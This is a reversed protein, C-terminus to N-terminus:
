LAKEIVDWVHQEGLDELGKPIVTRPCGERYRFRGRVEEYTKRSICPFGPTAESELRAGLNVTTGIATFDMLDYTGVNGLVAGGTSIGVRVQFPILGLVVRPENFEEVRRCLDLGALVARTAHNPGRFLALFGDGRFGSLLADHRRLTAVMEIMMRNLTMMVVEPPTDLAYATSGKLDLFLVSLPESVGSMLSDTEEPMGRGRVRRFVRAFYAEANVGKLEEGIGRVLRDRRSSEALALASLYERTVLPRPEGSASALRAIEWQTAAEEAQERTRAFHELAARLKPKAEDFRGRRRLISGQVRQVHALGEPFPVTAFLAEAKQAEDEAEDLRDQALHLLARDKRAYGELVSWRGAVARISADLWGAADEWHTRAETMRASLAARQGQELAIRGLANKILAEGREDRITRAIELDQLFCAEARELNGWDLYLRGLNGHSVALGPQDDWEAKRAIAQQFFEEATHFDDRGAYVMGLTDLVRGAGFHDRGMLRLAQHLLPLARGSDGAHFYNAGRLHATVAQLLVNDPAPRLAVLLREAEEYAHKRLAVFAQGFRSWELSEPSDEAEQFLEQAEQYNGREAAIWGAFFRIENRRPHDATAAIEERLRKLGTEWGYQRLLALIKEVVEPRNIM